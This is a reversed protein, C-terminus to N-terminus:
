LVLMNVARYSLVCTYADLSRQCLHTYPFLSSFIAVVRTLGESVYAYGFQWFDFSSLRQNHYAITFFRPSILVARLSNEELIVSEPLHTPKYHTSKYETSLSRSSNRSAVLRSTLM